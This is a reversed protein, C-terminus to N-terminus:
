FPWRAHDGERQALPALGPVTAAQHAAGAMVATHRRLLGGSIVGGVALAMALVVVIEAPKFRHRGLLPNVVLGLLVAPATIIAPNQNNYLPTSRLLWDNVPTLWALGAAVLLGVAISRWTIRGGIMAACRPDAG